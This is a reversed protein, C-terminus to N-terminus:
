STRAMVLEASFRRWLSQLFLETHRDVSRSIDRVIMVLAVLAGSFATLFSPRTLRLVASTSHTGPTQASLERCIRHSFKQSENIEVRVAVHTGHGNCTDLPIPDPVPSNDGVRIHSYRPLLAFQHHIRVLSTTAWLISDVLSRLVLDM